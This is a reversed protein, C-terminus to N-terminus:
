GEDGLHRAAEDVLQGTSCSRSGNGAQAIARAYCSHRCRCMRTPFQRDLQCQRDHGFGDGIAHRPVTANGVDYVGDGTVSQRGHRVPLADLLGHLHTINLFHVLTNCDVRWMHVTPVVTNALATTQALAAMHKM